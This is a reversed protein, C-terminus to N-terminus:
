KVWKIRSENVLHHCAGPIDGGRLRPYLRSDTFPLASVSSLTADLRELGTKHRPSSAARKASPYIMELLRGFEDEPFLDRSFRKLGEACYFEARCSAFHDAYNKSTVVDSVTLTCASDEGYAKVLESVYSQEDATPAIPVGPDDGREPEIGFMEYHAKTDTEHWQLLTRVLMERIKTFDFNHITVLVDPTLRKSQGKLGTREAQWDEILRKKLEIPKELLDHLDPGANQPSCIFYYRPAPYTKITLHQFFKALEPFLDSPALPNKYHKAQYLDWKESALSDVLRAEIDRGADGAGGLRKVRIYKREPKLNAVCSSEIFQEWQGPALHQVQVSPPLAGTRVVLQNVRAKTTSQAKSHM